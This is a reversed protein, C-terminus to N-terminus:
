LTFALKLSCTNYRSINGGISKGFSEGDIESIRDRRM